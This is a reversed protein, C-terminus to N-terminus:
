GRRFHWLWLRGNRERLGCGAACQSRSPSLAGSSDVGSVLQWGCLAKAPRSVASCSAPLVPQYSLRSIPVLGQQWPEFFADIKDTISQM